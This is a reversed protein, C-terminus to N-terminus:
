FKKRNAGCSPCRKEDEEMKYGCYECVDKTKEYEINEAIKTKVKDVFSKTATTSKKILKVIIVIVVVTIIIGFIISLGVMGFMFDFIDEVKDDFDDFADCLLTVFNILSLM